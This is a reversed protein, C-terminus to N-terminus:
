TRRCVFYSVPDPGYNIASHLTGAPLVLLDGPCIEYEKDSVMFVIRGSAVVIFEDEAHQHPTYSAGATDQWQFLLYGEDLLRDELEKEGLGAYIGKHLALEPQAM